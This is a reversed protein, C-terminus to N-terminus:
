RRACGPMSAYRRRGGGGQAHLRMLGVRAGEHAPVLAAVRGFAALAADYEGRAERLRALALLLGLHREQLTERRATAWDEYRDEPLLDGGYSALAAEYAAPDDTGLAAPAGPM